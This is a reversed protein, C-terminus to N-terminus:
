LRGGWDTIVKFAVVSASCNECFPPFLGGMRKGGKGGLLRAQLYYVKGPCVVEMDEVRRGDQSV